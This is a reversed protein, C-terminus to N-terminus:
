ASLLKLYHQLRLPSTCSIVVSGTRSDAVFRSPRDFLGIEKEQKQAESRLLKCIPEPTLHELRVVRVQYRNMPPTAQPDTTAWHPGHTLGRRIPKLLIGESRLLGVILVEGGTSLSLPELLRLPRHGLTSNEPVLEQGTLLSWGNLIAGTPIMGAPLVSDASQPLPLLLGLWATFLFTNM